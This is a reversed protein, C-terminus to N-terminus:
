PGSAAGARARAAELRRRVNCYPQGARVDGAAAFALGRCGGTCRPHPCSRCPEGLERRRIRRVAHLKPSALLAALPTTLLNGIKFPPYILGSCPYLDGTAAVYVVRRGAGCAFRGDATWPGIGHDILVRLPKGARTRWSRLKGLFRDLEAPEVAFSQRIAPEVARGTPVFTCYRVGQAGLVQALAMTEDARAVSAPCVITAIDIKIGAERLLRVGRAARYFDMTDCGRVLAHERADVGDLSVQASRLGAARLSRARPRTVLTGNSVLSYRELGFGQGRRMLEELDERLLTEGGSFAVTKLGLGAVQRLIETLEDLTPGAVAEETSSTYCHPCRLNCRRTIELGFYPPVHPPSPPEL